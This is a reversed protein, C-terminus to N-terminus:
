ICGDYGILVAVAITYICYHLDLMFCSCMSAFITYLYVYSKM